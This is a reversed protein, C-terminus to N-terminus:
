HVEGVVLGYEGRLVAHVQKAAAAVATNVAVASAATILNVVVELVYLDLAARRADQFALKQRPAPFAHDGGARHAVGIHRKLLRKFHRPLTKLNDVAVAEAKGNLGLGGKDQAVKAQKFGNVDARTAHGFHGKGCIVVRKALYDLRVDGWGGFADASQFRQAIGADGGNHPKRRYEGKYVVGLIVKKAQQVANDAGAHLSDEKEAEADGQALPIALIEVCLKVRMEGAHFLAIDFGKAVSILAYAWVVRAKRLYQFSFAAPM